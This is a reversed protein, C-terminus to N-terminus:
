RTESLAIDKKHFKEVGPIEEGSEWRSQCAAEGARRQFLDWAAKKAVYACFAEYDIIRPIDKERVTVSGLTGRAGNIGERTFSGLIHDEIRREEDKVAEASVERAKREHKAAVLLDICAGIEDPLAPTPHWGAPLAKATKRTKAAQPTRVATKKAM